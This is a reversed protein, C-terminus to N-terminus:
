RTGRQPRRQPRGFRRLPTWFANAVSTVPDDYTAGRADVDVFARAGVVPDVGVADEAV